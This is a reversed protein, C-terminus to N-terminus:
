LLIFLCSVALLVALSRNFWRMYKPQQIFRGLMVGGLVWVALSLWCIVLYLSSFVALEQAGVTPIYSSIGAVSAMWAKPNVWQMYAGLMFSPADQDSNASIEGNDMFLKVSLYLLFLVGAFQLVLTIQELWNVVYHLGLGIFSFLLVFGLTAGTVFRLGVFTGYRAGSSIGVLNVPGPSISAVLSFLSMSLFLSFSM